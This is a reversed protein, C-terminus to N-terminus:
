TRRRQGAPGAALRARCRGSRPQPRASTSARPGSGGSGGLPGASAPTLSERRVHNTAPEALDRSRRAEGRRCATGFLAAGSSAGEDSKRKPRGCRRGGCRCDTGAATRDRFGRPAPCWQRKEAAPCAHESQSRSYFAASDRQFSWRAPCIRAIVIMRRDPAGISRTASSEYGSRQATNQHLGGHGAFNRAASLGRRPEGPRGALDLAGQLGV